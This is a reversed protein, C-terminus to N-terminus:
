GSPSPSAAKTFHLSALMQDFQEKWGTEAPGVGGARTWVNLVAGAPDLDGTDIVAYRGPVDGFFDDCHAQGLSFCGLGSLLTAPPTIDYVVARRGDVTTEKRGTITVKGSRGLQDLYALYSEYTVDKRSTALQVASYRTFELGICESGGDPCREWVVWEYEQYNPVLSQTTVWRPLSDVSFPVAFEKSTFLHRSSDPPAPQVVGPGQLARAGVAIVAVAAAAAVAGWVIRRNRTRRDIHDLRGALVEYEENTDTKMSAEEADARLTSAIALELDNM